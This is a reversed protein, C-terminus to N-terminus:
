WRLSALNPLSIDATLTRARAYGGDAAMAYRFINGTPQTIPAARDAERSRVVLRARVSRIRNPAIPSAPAGPIVEHAYSYNEDAGFPFTALTPGGGDGGVFEPVV